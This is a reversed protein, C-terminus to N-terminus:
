SLSSGVYASPFFNAKSSNQKEFFFFIGEIGKHTINMKCDMDFSFVFSQKKKNLQLNICGDNSFCIFLYMARKHISQILCTWCLVIM